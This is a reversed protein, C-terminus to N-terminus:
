KANLLVPLPHERWEGGIPAVFLQASRISHRELDCRTDFATRVGDIKTCVVNPGTGTVIQARADGINLLLYVPSETVAQGWGVLLIQTAQTRPARCPRTEALLAVDRVTYELLRASVGGPRTLSIRSRGQRPLGASYDFTGHYRGDITSVTVCFHSVTPALEVWFGEPSTQDALSRGSMFARTPSGGVAPFREFYDTSTAGPQLISADPQITGTRQQVAV